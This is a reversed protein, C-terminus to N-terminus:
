KVIFQKIYEVDCTLTLDGNYVGLSVQLHTFRYPTSFNNLIYNSITSLEDCNLSPLILRKWHYYARNEEVGIVKIGTNTEFHKKFDLLEKSYGM